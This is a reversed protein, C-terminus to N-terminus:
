SMGVIHVIVVIGAAVVILATLLMKLTEIM